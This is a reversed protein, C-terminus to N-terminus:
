RRRRCVFVRNQCVRAFLQRRFAFGEVRRLVAAPLLLVRENSPMVGIGTVSVVELGAEHTMARVEAESMGLTTAKGLRHAVRLMASATNLHNNFVLYGDDALVGTLARMAERRLAPQANPFFRFATVLDFRSGSLVPDRTLDANVLRASVTRGRAVQLMDPSVDVGVSDAAAPELHALIRGTGCAFDLHRFGGGPFLTRVLDDLVRREFEWMMARHPNASFKADYAAGYGAATHSQRYDTSSVVPDRTSATASPSGDAPAPNTPRM